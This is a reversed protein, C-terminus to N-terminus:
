ILKGGLYMLPEAANPLCPNIFSFVSSSTVGDWLLGDRRIFNHTQAVDKPNDSKPELNKVAQGMGSNTQYQAGLQAAQVHCKRSRQCTEKVATWAFDEIDTFVQQPV